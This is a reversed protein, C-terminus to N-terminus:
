QWKMVVQVNLLRPVAVVLELWTLTLRPLLRHMGKGRCTRKPQALSHAQPIWKSVAVGDAGQNGVVAVVAVM